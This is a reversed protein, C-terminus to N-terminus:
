RETRPQGPSAVAELTAASIARRAATDLHRLAAGRQDSQWVNVAGGDDARALTAVARMRMASALVRVARQDLGDPLSWAPPTPSRLAEIAEAADPRWRAVDLADLADTVELLAVRMAREAEALTGVVGPLTRRWDTEHTVETVHWTVLHGTEHISGFAVVDPVACWARGDRHVLVCEGADTAPGAVGPPLGSVDGPVPLTAAAQRPGTAWAAVLGDLSSPTGPAGPPPGGPVGDSWTVTHPEDDGEVARVARNVPEAGAGAASLWLALLVSRPLRLVDSPPDTPM